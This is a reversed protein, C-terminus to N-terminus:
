SMWVGIKMLQLKGDIWKFLFQRGGGSCRIVPCTDVGLDALGRRSPIQEHAYVHHIREDSRLLPRVIATADKYDRLWMDGWIVVGKFDFEPWTPSVTGYESLVRKLKAVDRIRPEDRLQSGTLESASVMAILLIFLSVRV